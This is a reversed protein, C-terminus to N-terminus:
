KSEQSTFQCNHNLQSFNVKKRNGEKGHFIGNTTREAFELNALKISTNEGIIWNALRLDTLVIGKNGIYSM